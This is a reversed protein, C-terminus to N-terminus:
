KMVGEIRSKKSKIDDSVKEIIKAFYLLDQKSASRGNFLLRGSKFTCDSRVSQSSNM